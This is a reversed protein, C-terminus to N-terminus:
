NRGVVFAWRFSPDVASYIAAIAQAVGRKVRKGLTTSPATAAASSSAATGSPHPTSLNHMVASLYDVLLGGGHQTRNAVFSEHTYEAIDDEEINKTADTSLDESIGAATLAAIARVVNQRGSDSELLRELNADDNFERKLKDGFAARESALMTKTSELEEQSVRPFAIDTLVARLCGRGGARSEVLSFSRVRSRMATRVQLEELLKNMEHVTDAQKQTLTTNPVYDRTMFKRKRM